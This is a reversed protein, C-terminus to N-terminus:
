SKVVITGKMMDMGCAFTFTGAEQPAVEFTVPENLPLPTNEIGFAPIQIQKACTGDTTRTFVLRAPTDADLEIQEPDYGNPGVTVEVVQVDDQARAAGAATQRVPMRQAQASRGPRAQSSAEGQANGDEMMEGQMQGKMMPCNQMMKQMMPCSKMMEGMAAEDMMADGNMMPCDEMMQAMEPNDKMMPCNKMMDMTADMDMRPAAEESEGDQALATGYAGGLMLLSFMFAILTKTSKKQDKM